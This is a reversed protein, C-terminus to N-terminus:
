ELEESDVSGTSLMDCDFDQYPVDYMRVRVTERLQALKEPLIDKNELQIKLRELTRGHEIIHDLAVATMAWCAPLNLQKLRKLERVLVLVVDDTTQGTVTLHQVNPFVTVIDEVSIEQDYFCKLTKVSTMVYDPQFIECCGIELRELQKLCSIQRLEDDSVQNLTLHRINPTKAFFASLDDPNLYVGELKLSKLNSNSITGLCCDFGGSFRIGLCELQPMHSLFTPLAAGHSADISADIDLFLTKLNPLNEKINSWIQPGRDGGKEMPELRLIELSPQKSILSMCSEQKMWPDQWNSALSLEVLHLRDLSCIERFNDPSLYTNDLSLKQLTAHTARILPMVNTEYPEPNLRQNLVQLNPCIQCFLNVFEGRFDLERLQELKFDVTGTVDDPSELDIFDSFGDRITLCRLNPTMRLLDILPDVRNGIFVTLIQITEGIKDWLPGGLGLQVHAVSYRGTVNAAMKSQEHHDDSFPAPWSDFWLEFQAMLAPTDCVVHNWRRCTLRVRELQVPSLHSFIEALLEAPLQEWPSPSPQQQM